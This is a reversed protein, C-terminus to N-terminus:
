KIFLVRRLPSIIKDQNSYFRCLTCEKISQRNNKLKLRFDQFNKNNWIQNFSQKFINGFSYSKFPMYCCPAVTGNAYIMVNVYPMYCIKDSNHRRDTNFYQFCDDLSSETFKLGLQKAMERAESIKNMFEQKRFTFYGIKKFSTEMEELGYTLPPSFVFPIDPFEKHCYDIFGILENVNKDIIVTGITLVGRKDIKIADRFNCLVEEFVAGKRIKEYTKKNISDLSFGIYSIGIDYLRQFNTKNMLTFNTNFGFEAGKDKTYKAIEFLSPNLLTEGQGTYDVLLPKIQDFIRKYTEFDIVGSKLVDTKLVGQPCMDCKLNCVGSLEIQLRVPPNSIKSWKMCSWASRAIKYLNNPNIKIYDSIKKM